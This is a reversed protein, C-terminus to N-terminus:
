FRNSKYIDFTKERDLENKLFKKVKYLESFDNRYINEIEVRFKRIILFNQIGLAKYEEDSIPNSINQLNTLLVNLEQLKTLLRESLWIQDKRLLILETVFNDFYNKSSFIGSWAKEGDQTIFGLQWTISNISEYANIRKDIVKKKYDLRYDLFKFVWQFCVTIFASLVSSTLILAIIQYNNM